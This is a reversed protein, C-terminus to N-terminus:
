YQGLTFALLLADCDVHIGIDNIWVSCPCSFLRRGRLQEKSLDAASRNTAVVTYIHPSLSVNPQEARSDAQEHADDVSDIDALNLCFQHDVILQQVM